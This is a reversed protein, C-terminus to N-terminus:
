PDLRKEAERRRARAQQIHRIPNKREPIEMAELEALVARGQDLRARIAEVLRIRVAEPMVRRGALWHRISGVSALLTMSLGKRFGPYTGESWPYLWEM